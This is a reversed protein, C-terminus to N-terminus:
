RCGHGGSRVPAFSRNDQQMMMVMIDEETGIWAVRSNVAATTEAAAVHAADADIAAADSGGDDLLDDLLAEYGGFVKALGGQEGAGGLMVAANLQMFHTCHIIIPPQHLISFIPSTHPTKAAAPRLGKFREPKGV